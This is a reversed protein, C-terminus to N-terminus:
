LKALNFLCAQIRPMTEKKCLLLTQGASRREEENEVLLGDMKIIKYGKSTWKSYFDQFHLSALSPGHVSNEFAICLPCHEVGLLRSSNLISYEAGEIDMKIFSPEKGLSRLLTDLSITEVEVDQFPMSPDIKEWIHLGAIGGRGHHEDSIRFTISDQNEITEPVLAKNIVQVIHSDAYVKKLRAVHAPHAEICIVSGTSAVEAMQKTHYGYNAGVDIILDDKGCIAKYVAAIAEEEKMAISTMKLFRGKEFYIQSRTAKAEANVYHLRKSQDHSPRPHSLSLNLAIKILGKQFLQDGRILMHIDTEGRGKM